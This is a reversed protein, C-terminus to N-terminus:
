SESGPLILADKAIQIVGRLKSSTESGAIQELAERYRTREEDLRQIVDLNARHTDANWADNGGQDTM